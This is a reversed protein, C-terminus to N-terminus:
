KRARIRYLALGSAAAILGLGICVALWDGTGHPHLHTGPHALAPSAALLLLAPILHKM